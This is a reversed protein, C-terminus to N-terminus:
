SMAPTPIFLSRVLAQAQPTEGEMGEVWRAALEESMIAAGAVVVAVKQAQEGQAVMLHPITLARLAVVGPM